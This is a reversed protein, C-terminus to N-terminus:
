AGGQALIEFVTLGSSACAMDILTKVADEPLTLVAGSSYHLTIRDDFVDIKATRQEIELCNKCM